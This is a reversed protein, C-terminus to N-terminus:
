RTKDLLELIRELLASDSAEGAHTIKDIIARASAKYRPPNSLLMVAVDPELTELAHNGEFVIGPASSLKGRALEVAESLYEKRTKVWIVKSAGARRYRFTDKGEQLIVTDSEELIYNENLSACVGCDQKGRPCRHKKGDECVTVKCAAWGPLRSLLREAFTTKGVNSTSGAICVIEM